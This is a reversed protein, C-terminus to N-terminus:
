SSVSSSTACTSTPAASGAQGAVGGRCNVTLRDPASSGTPLSSTSFPQALLAASSAHALAQLARRGTEVTGRGWETGPGSEELFVVDLVGSTGSESDSAQRWPLSPNFREVNALFDSRFTYLVWEADVSMSPLARIVVELGIGAPDGGSIGIKM